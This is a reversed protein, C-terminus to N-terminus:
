RRTIARELQRADFPKTVIEVGHHAGLTRGRSGYGTAFVFPVQRRQLIDAIPTSSEGRLNMDLVAFDLDASAALELGVDLHMAPGVVEHGLDALMDEIMMAVLAEDEVLLVRM